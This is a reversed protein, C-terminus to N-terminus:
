KTNLHYDKRIPTGDEYYDEYLGHWRGGLTRFRCRVKGDTYYDEWARHLKGKLYKQGIKRM